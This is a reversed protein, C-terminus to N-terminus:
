ANTWCFTLPTAVFLVALLEALLRHKKREKCGGGSERWSETSTFRYM